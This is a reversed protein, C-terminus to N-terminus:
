NTFVKIASSAIQEELQGLVPMWYKKTVLDADYKLAFRRARSQRTEAAPTGREQYAKEYAAVISSIRPKLWWSKHAGNWFKEGPVKWGSGCLETMATWDTVVVPTGCAQAEVIPLGFGEGYSCNSLVDLCSYWAALNRPQVLGSLLSYQDTFRIADGLDKYGSRAIIDQLNLAAPAFIMSHLMLLSDPHREHFEAFALIQEPFGKRVADKNAANIGITFTDSSVSLEDRIAARNKAPSMIDTEIGHPVYLPKLGAETMMKEGFRSIALPTANSARLKEEDMVSFPLCDVPTINAVHIGLDAPVQIVWADVLILILDAKVHRAHNWVIDNGYGDLGGPLITFGEWGTPRGHLGYFTSIVVEHGLSRLRPALIAAQQGYGTPAWPANTHLLIRLKVL